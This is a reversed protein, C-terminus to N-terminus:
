GDGFCLHCFHSVQFDGVNTTVTCVQITTNIHEGPRAKRRGWDIIHYGIDLSANVRVEDCRVMKPRRWYLNDAM